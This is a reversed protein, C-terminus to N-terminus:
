PQLETDSFRHLVHLARLNTALEPVLLNSILPVYNLSSMLVDM